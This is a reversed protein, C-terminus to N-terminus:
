TQTQVKTSELKELNKFERINKLILSDYNEIYKKYAQIILKREIKDVLMKNTDDLEADILSIAEILAKSSNYVMLQNM